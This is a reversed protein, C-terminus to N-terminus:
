PVAVRQEPLVEKRVEFDENMILVASKEIILEKEIPKTKLLYKFVISQNPPVNATIFEVREEKEIQKEAGDLWEIQSYFCEQRFTIATQKIGNIFVFTVAITNPKEEDFTVNQNYHWLLQGKENTLRNNQANVYFLSFVLFLVFSLRFVVVQLEYSTVRLKYSKM